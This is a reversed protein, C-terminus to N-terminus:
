QVLEEQPLDHPTVAVAVADIELDRYTRNLDIQIRDYREDPLPLHSLESTGERSVYGFEMNTFREPTEVLPRWPGNPDRIEIVARISQEDLRHVRLRVDRWAYPADPRPRGIPPMSQGSIVIRRIDGNEDRLEGRFRTPGVRHWMGLSLPNGRFNLEANWATRPEGDREHPRYRLYLAVDHRTLDIPPLGRYEISWGGVADEGGPRLIGHSASLQTSGDPHPYLDWFKLGQEFDDEFIPHENADYPFLPTPQRESRDATIDAAPGAPVSTASQTATSQSAIWQWGLVLVATATLLMAAGILVPRHVRPRPAPAITPRGSLYNAVDRALDGASQYRDDRRKALAKLVIADITQNLPSPRKQRRRRNEQRADHAAMVTSPPMPAARMINDLVDRMAGVVEYPFRGTLMQYLIVGLAYVDTRIDIKSPDGEAQEPSAWPLSGLFQGTISVAQNTDGTPSMVGLRALGFDLVHPEGREDVLINTPKLDRHVIGRVHAANVADCIKMFMRLLEAPQEPPPGDPHDHYYQELWENLPLGDVFDMALFDSGDRTTGRDIIRVIHPHNLAALVQVERDFRARGQDSALAGERMIKVAVHRSTADHVALFVVAQGGRSLERQLTYGPVDIQAISMPRSPASLDSMQWAPAGQENSTTTQANHPADNSDQATAGPPQEMQSARTLEEGLEPMLEEHEDIVQEDSVPEGARRRRMVEAVLERIREQRTRSDDTGDSDKKTM